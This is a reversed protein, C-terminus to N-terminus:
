DDGNVRYSIELTSNQNERIEYEGGGRTGLATSYPVVRNTLIIVTETNMTMIM